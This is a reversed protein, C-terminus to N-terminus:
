GRAAGPRFPLGLGGGGGGGRGGERWVTTKGIGAEGELVLAVYRERAEDLVREARLFELERGVVATMVATQVRPDVSELREDAPGSRDQEVRRNRKRVPARM